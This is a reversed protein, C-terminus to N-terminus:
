SRLKLVIGDRREAPPVIVSTVRSRRTELHGSACQIGRAASREIGLSGFVIGKSVGRLAFHPPLPVFQLIHLQWRSM